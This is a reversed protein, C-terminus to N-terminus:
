AGGGSNFALIFFVIKRNQMMMVSYEYGEEM